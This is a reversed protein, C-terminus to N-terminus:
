DMNKEILKQVEKEVIKEVMAALNNDLWEALMPRLLDAVVEEVTHAEKLDCNKLVSKQNLQQQMKKMISLSNKLTYQDNKNMKCELVAEVENNHKTVTLDNAIQSNNVIDRFLPRSGDSYLDGEQSLKKSKPDLRMDETLELTNMNPPNLVTQMIEDRVKKIEDESIKGNNRDNTNIISM